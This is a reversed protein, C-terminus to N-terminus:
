YMGDDAGQMDPKLYGALLKRARALRSMVTGIPVEAIAAIQKYSLDDMEKLVIMERFITPLRALAANVVRAADSRAHIAAPDGDAGDQAASHQDEDFSDEKQLHRQDRLSTFYTNRVITLLWARADDGRFGGFFRYARLFAQQVLDEADHDNRTLWRALNYAADLHPMVVGEFAKRTKEEELGMTM